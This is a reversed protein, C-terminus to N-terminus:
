LKVASRVLADLEEVLEGEPRLNMSPDPKISRFDWYRVRRVGRANVLLYHAAPLKHISRHFSLPAPINGIELYVRLSEPDICLAGDHLLLNLAGPRSAFGFQGNKESYYLPKVGMRDRAVFLTRETRDWIAFAFMGNIRDLCRVGWARYAELLTETDCTSRWGGQPGLRARLDAHNYIEGNFVIVFRRDSSQMPQHGLPSLDVISLRRHGLLVSEDQWIGSDDPGRRQYRELAALFADSGAQVGAPNFLGLIGCM